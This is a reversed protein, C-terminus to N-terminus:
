AAESQQPEAHLLAAARQGGESSTWLLSRPGNALGKNGVTCALMTFLPASAAGVDGWCDAPAMFASTDAFHESTRALMFGFEDARYAEGNLDCFTQDIRTKESAEPPLLKQVATTLGRGICVTKTKIRNEEEALATRLFRGKITLGYRAATAESCLLCFGAAEGPVFGWANHAYLLQENSEIWDLTDLDMYSDVGGVVCFEAARRRIMECASDIAKFGASHGQPFTSRLALKCRGKTMRTLASSITPGLGRPLGPRSEPLGIFTPISIPGSLNQEISDLCETAAPLALQLFRDAGTVNDDIYPASSVVFPEGLRDIMSAHDTFGAIGALVAAATTPATM